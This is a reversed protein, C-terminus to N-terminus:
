YGSPKLIVEVPSVPVAFPNRMLIFSAIRLAAAWLSHQAAVSDPRNGTERAIGLQQIRLQGL